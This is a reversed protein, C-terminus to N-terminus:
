RCVLFCLLKILKMMKGYNIGEREVQFKSIDDISFADTTMTTSPSIDPQVYPVDLMNKQQDKSKSTVSIQSNIKVKMKENKDISANSTKRTNDHIKRQKKGEHLTSQTKPWSKLLSAKRESGRKSSTVATTTQLQEKTKQTIQESKNTARRTSPFVIPTVSKTKSHSM